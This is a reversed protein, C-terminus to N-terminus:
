KITQSESGWAEGLLSRPDRQADNLRSGTAGLPVAYITAHYIITEDTVVFFVFRFLTCILFGDVGM